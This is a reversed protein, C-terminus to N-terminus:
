ERVLRKAAWSEVEIKVVTTLALAHAQFAGAAFPEKTYHAM